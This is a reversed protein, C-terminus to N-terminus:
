CITSLSWTNASLGNAQESPTAVPQLAVDPLISSISYSSSSKADPKKRSISDPRMGNKKQCRTQATNGNEYGNGGSGKHDLYKRHGKRSQLEGRFSQTLLHPRISDAENREGLMVPPMVFSDTAADDPLSVGVVSAVTAFIDTTNTMQSTVQSLPIHGPWRAIFPVRHGSGPLPINYKVSEITPISSSLLDRPNVSTKTHSRSRM